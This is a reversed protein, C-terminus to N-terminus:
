LQIKEDCIDLLEHDHTIIIIIKNSKLYKILAKFNEISKKDLASTPEDLIILDPNKLLTRIIAIKQKEGGSLNNSDTNIYTNFGNPLSEIFRELNFLHVYNKLM